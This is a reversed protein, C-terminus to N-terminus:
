KAGVLELAQTRLQQRREHFNVPPLAVGKITDGLIRVAEEHSIAAREHSEQEKLGNFLEIFEKRAFSLIKQAEAADDSYQPDPLMGYRQSGGWARWVRLAKPDDIRPGKAWATEASEFSGSSLQEAIKLVQSVSPMFNSDRTKVLHRAALIVGQPSEDSLGFHWARVVEDTVKLTPFASALLKLLIEIQEESM